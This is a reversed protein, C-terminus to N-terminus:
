NWFNLKKLFPSIQPKLKKYTHDIYNKATWLLEIPSRTGQKTLWAGSVILSNKIQAWIQHCKYSSQYKGVQSNHLSSAADNDLGPRLFPEWLLLHNNRFYPKWLLIYSINPYIINLAYMINTASASSMTQSAIKSRMVIKSTMHILIAGCWNQVVHCFNKDHPALKYHWVMVFQGLNCTCLLKHHSSM